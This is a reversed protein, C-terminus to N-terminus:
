TSKVSLQDVQVLDHPVPECFRVRAVMVCGVFPPLTHGCASSVRAQLSWVHADSQVTMPSQPVNEVQLLDHPVPVCVRVRAKLAALLPPAGHGGEVVVWVREQLTKAHATSQLSEAKPAQDPQVFDHPPEQSDRRRVTSM